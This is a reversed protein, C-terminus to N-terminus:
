DRESSERGVSMALMTSTPIGAPSVLYMRRVPPRISRTAKTPITQAMPAPYREELVEVPKPRSRRSSTKERTSDKERRSNSLNPVAESMVLVVLSMVWTWITTRMVRLITTLAGMMAMPPIMIATDMSTSRDLVRMHARGNRKRM